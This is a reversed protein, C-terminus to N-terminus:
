NLFMIYSLVMYTMSLDCSALLVLFKSNLNLPVQKCLDELYESFAVPKIDNFKAIFSHKLIDVLMECSFVITAIQLIHLFNRLVM